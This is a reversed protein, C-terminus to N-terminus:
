KKVKCFLYRSSISDMAFVYIRSQSDQFNIFMNDFLRGLFFLKSKQLLYNSHRVYPHVLQELDRKDDFNTETYNVNAKSLMEMLRHMTQM